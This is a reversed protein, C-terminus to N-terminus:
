WTEGKYTVDYSSQTARGRSVVDEGHSGMHGFFRAGGRRDFAISASLTRNFRDTHLGATDNSRQEAIALCSETILEAHRMGGVPSPNQGSLRGTFAEYRYTLTYDLNPVPWLLLEQRQGHDGATQTFRTTFFRPIGTDTSEQLLSRM